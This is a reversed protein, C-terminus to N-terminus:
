FVDLVTDVIRTAGDRPLRDLGRRACDALTGDGLWQTVTRGVEVAEPRVVGAGADLIWRANAREHDGVPDDLILPLGLAAYFVMESPKTWLVDTRSLLEDFRGLYDSFDLAAVVEVRDLGRDRCWNTFQRALRRRTGAVLALHLDGARVAPALSELLERARTAQAGAGGVAFTLRPAGDGGALRALRPEPDDDVLEDPLPFGTVVVQRDAVGYSRMRAAAVETPALYLIRSQDPRAPAWIRHVDTDTLVCAVPTGAHHDAALAPAYFTTLLGRGTAELHQALGRGLGKAILRDLRRVARDAGGSVGIRTLRDLVTRFVPGLVAMQSWRSVLEYSSRTRGWMRQEAAAAIPPRDIETVTEGLRGALAAAARLHGYGMAVSAVLPLASANSSM